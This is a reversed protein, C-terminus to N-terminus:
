YCCCLGPLPTAPFSTLLPLALPPLTPPCAFPSYLGALLRGVPPILSPGLPVCSAACNLQTLQVPIMILAQTNPDENTATADTTGFADTPRNVDEAIVCSTFLQALFVLVLLITKYM